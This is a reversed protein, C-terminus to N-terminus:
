TPWHETEYDGFDAGLHEVYFRAQDVTHGETAEIAHDCLTRAVNRDEPRQLDWQDHETYLKGKDDGQFWGRLGGYLGGKLFYRAPLTRVRVTRTRGDAFDLAFRAAQM